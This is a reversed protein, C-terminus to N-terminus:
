ERAGGWILTLTAIHGAFNRQKDFHARTPRLAITGQQGGSLVASAPYKAPGSRANDLFYHGGIGKLNEPQSSYVDWHMVGAARKAVSSRPTFNGMYYQHLGVRKPNFVCTIELNSNRPTKPRDTVDCGLQGIRIDKAQAACVSALLSVAALGGLVLKSRM